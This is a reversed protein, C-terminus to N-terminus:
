VADLARGASMFEIGPQFHHFCLAQCQSTMRLQATEEQEHRDICSPLSFPVLLNRM